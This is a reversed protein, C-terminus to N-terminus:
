AAYSIARAKNGTTAESPPRRLQSGWHLGTAVRDYSAWADYMCTHTMALMRAAQPPAAHTERIAQLTTSNWDVVITKPAFAFATFPWLVIIAVLAFRIQPTASEKTMQRNRVSAM